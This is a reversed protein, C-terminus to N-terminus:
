EAPLKTRPSLSREAALKALPSTTQDTSLRPLPSPLASPTMLEDFEWDNDDISGERSEEDFSMRIKSHVPSRAGKGLLTRSEPVAYILKLSLSKGLKPSKGYKERPSQIRASLSRPPLQRGATEPKEIELMPREMTEFEEKMNGLCNWLEQIRHDGKSIVISNWCLFHTIMSCKQLLM